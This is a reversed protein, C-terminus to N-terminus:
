EKGKSMAEHIADLSIDALIREAAKGLRTDVDTIFGRLANRQHIVSDYNEEVAKALREVGKDDACAFCVRVDCVILDRDDHERREECMPCDFETGNDFQESM